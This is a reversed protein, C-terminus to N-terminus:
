NDGLAQSYAYLTKVNTRLTYKSMDKQLAFARKNKVDVLLVQENLTDVSLIYGSKVHLHGGLFLQRLENLQTQLSTQM